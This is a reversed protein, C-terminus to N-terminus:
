SIQKIVREQEKYGRKAGPIIEDHRRTHKRRIKSSTITMLFSRRNKREDEASRRRSDKNLTLPLIPLNFKDDVSPLSLAWAKERKKRVKKRNKNVNIHSKHDVLLAWWPRLSRCQCSSQSRTRGSRLLLTCRQEYLSGAWLLVNSDSRGRRWSRTM